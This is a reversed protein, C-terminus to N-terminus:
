LTFQKCWKHEMDSWSSWPEGCSRTLQLNLYCKDSNVDQKTVEKFGDRETPIKFTLNELGSKEYNGRFNYSGKESKLYIEADLKRSIKKPRWTIQWPKWSEQILAANIGSRPQKDWNQRVYVSLLCIM